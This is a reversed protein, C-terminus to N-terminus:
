SAKIAYHDTESSYNKQILIEPDLKKGRSDYETPSFFNPVLIQNRSNQSFICSNAQCYKRVTGFETTEYPDTRPCYELNIEHEHASWM